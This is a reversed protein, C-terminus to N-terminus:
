KSARGLEIGRRLAAVLAKTSAHGDLEGTEYRKNATPCYKEGLRRAEILLPDVPEEEHAAILKAGERIAVRVAVGYDGEGTSFWYDHDLGTRKCFEREAWEPIQEPDSM